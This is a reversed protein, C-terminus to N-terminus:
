GGVLMPVMIIEEVKPDFKFMRRNSKKGDMKVAFAQYGKSLLDYFKDRAEKISDIFHRDWILRDDGHASIVKMVIEGQSEVLPAEETIPEDIM